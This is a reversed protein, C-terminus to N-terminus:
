KGYLVHYGLPDKQLGFGVYGKEIVNQQKSISSQIISLTENYQPPSVELLNKGLLFRVKGRYVGGRSKLAKITFGAKMITSLSPYNYPSITVLVHEYGSEKIYNLSPVLIRAQLRNGRYLPHVVTSELHVVKLLQSSVLNLERGLNSTSNGPFSITRFAILEDEVYVGIAKGRTPPLVFKKLFDGSDPVFLRHDRINAHVFAQLALIEKLNSEDLFMMTYEVLTKNADNKILRGSEIMQNMPVGGQKYGIPFCM